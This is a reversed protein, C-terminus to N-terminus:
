HLNFDQTQNENEAHLLRILINHSRHTKLHLESASKFTSMFASSPSRLALPVSVSVISSVGLQTEIPVYLPAITHTLM